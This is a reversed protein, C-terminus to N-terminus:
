RRWASWARLSSICSLEHRGDRFHVCRCRLRHFLSLFGAGFFNPLINWKWTKKYMAANRRWVALAYPLSISM